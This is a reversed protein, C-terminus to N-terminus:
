LKRGADDMDFMVIVEEFSELWNFNARFVKAASAAGTPISVVPYKNGQVQSVTLCDIEGETM